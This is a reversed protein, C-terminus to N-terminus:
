IFTEKFQLVSDKAKEAGLISFMEACFDFVTNNVVEERAFSLSCHGQITNDIAQILTEKNTFTNIGPIKISSLVIPITGLMVSKHWYDGSLDIYIDTSKIIDSREQETVVGLYHYSDMKVNGFFRVNKEFLYSMIDPISSAIKQDIFDTFCCIKCSMNPRKVGSPLNTVDYLNSPIELSSRNSSKGLILNALIDDSPNDGLYVLGTNPFREKIHKLGNMNAEQGYIVLEPNKDELMRYLPIMSSDWGVVEINSLLLVNGILDSRKNNKEIVIM